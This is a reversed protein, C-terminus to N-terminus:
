ALALNDIFTRVVAVFEAPKELPLMHAADPLILKQVNAPIREMIVDAIALIDSVDKDGVVLLTPAVIENLRMMQPPDLRLELDPATFMHANESLLRHLRMRAAQPVSRPHRTPGDMWLRLSLEVANMLDGDTAAKEIEMALKALPATFATYGSLTSSALVLSAVLPPHWLALGLAVNGGMSAGVMHARTIGLHGLLAHIDAVDSYPGSHRASKGFGRFDPRVVRYTEALPLFHEDWMRHDAIGAHLLLLPVGEGATEYYLTTGNVEALGTIVEAM